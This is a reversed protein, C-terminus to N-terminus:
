KKGRVAAKKKKAAKNCIHNEKAAQLDLKAANTHRQSGSRNTKGQLAREAGGKQFAKARDPAPLNFAVQPMM